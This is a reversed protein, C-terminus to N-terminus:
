EAQIRPYSFIFQPNSFAHPEVVFARKVNALMFLTLDNTHITRPIFPRTQIAYLSSIMAITDRNTHLPPPRSISTSTEVIADYLLM